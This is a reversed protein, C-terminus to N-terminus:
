NRAARKNARRQAREGTRMGREFGRWYALRAVRCAKFERLADLAAARLKSREGMIQDGNSAVGALTRDATTVVEVARRTQTYDVRLGRGTVFAAKRSKVRRVTAATVVPVFARSVFRAKGKVKLPSAFSLAALPFAARHVRLARVSERLVKAAQREGETWLGSAAKALKPWVGFVRLSEFASFEDTFRAAKAARQSTAGLMVWSLFVWQRWVRAGETKAGGESRKRRTAGLTRRLWNVAARKHAHETGHKTQGKGTSPKGSSKDLAALVSAGGGSFFDALARVDALSVSAGTDDGAGNDEDRSSELPLTFTVQAAKRGTLGQRGTDNISKFAARWAVGAFGWVTVGECSQFSGGDSDGVQEISGAGKDDDWVFSKGQMAAWVACAAASAAERLTSDNAVLGRKGLLYRAARAAMGGSHVSLVGGKLFGRGYCLAVIQAGDDLALCLRADASLLAAGGESMWHNFGQVDDFAPVDFRDAGMAECEDLGPVFQSRARMRRGAEIGTLTGIEDLTLYGESAERQKSEDDFTDVLAARRVDVAWSPLFSGFVEGVFSHRVGGGTIDATIQGQGRMDVGQLLAARTVAEVTNTKDSM